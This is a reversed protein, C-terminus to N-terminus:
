YARSCSSWAEASGSVINADRIDPYCSILYEVARVARTTASTVKGNSFSFRVVLWTQSGVSKSVTTSFARTEYSKLGLVDRVCSSDIMDSNSEVQVDLQACRGGTELSM